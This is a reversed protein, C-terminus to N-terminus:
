VNEERLLHLLGEAFARHGAATFHVGDHCLEVGWKGADGFRVGLRGALAEYLAGLARSAEVLRDTPVWMGRVLPPPALLVTKERWPELVTLFAEMRAATEEPSCGQLLDNTGLMVILLETDAPLLPSRAPIQRGNQGCNDMKWGTDAGVLEVWRSEAPLRGFQPDYGFTNSDGYCVVKV